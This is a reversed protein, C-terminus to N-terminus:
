QFAWQLSANFCFANVFQCWCICKLQVSMLNKTDGIQVEGEEV